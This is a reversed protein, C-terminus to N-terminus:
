RVCARGASAHVRQRLLADARRGLSARARAAGADPQRVNESDFDCVVDLRRRSHRVDVRSRGPDDARKPGDNNGSGDCRVSEHTDRYVSDVSMTLNNKTQASPMTTAAVPQPFDSSRGTAGVTPVMAVAWPTTM